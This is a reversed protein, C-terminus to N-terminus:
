SSITQLQAAATAVLAPWTSARHGPLHANYATTRMLVRRGARQLDEIFHPADEIYLDAAVVTKDSVFAIDDVPIDHSELWRGTGCLATRMVQSTWLRGTVIRITFGMDHLQKLGDVAGEVPPMSAYGDSHVFAEYHLRDYEAKTGVGWDRLDWYAPQQSSLHKGEDRLMSAIVTLRDASVDDLDVAVVPKAM